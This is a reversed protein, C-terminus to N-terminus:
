NLKLKAAPCDSISNLYSKTQEGWDSSNSWRSLWFRAQNFSESSASIRCLNTIGDLVRNEKGLQLANLVILKDLQSQCIDPFQESSTQQQQQLRLLWVKKSNLDQPIPMTCLNSISSSQSNSSQSNTTINEQVLKHQSNNFFIILPSIVLLGTAIAFAAIQALPENKIQNAMVITKNYPTTKPNKETVIQLKKEQDSIQNKVWDKNFIAHYLRNAVQLKDDQEIVLGLNILEQTEQSHNSSIEGQQLIQLYIELLTKPLCVTNNLLYYEITKLYGGLEQYEWNYIINNQVIKEVFKAELGEAVFHNYNSIIRCIERTLFPHGGTWSFVEKLLLYPSAALSELHLSKIIEQQSPPLLQLQDERQVFYELFFNLTKPRLWAKEVILEGFLQKTHKQEELLIEIQEGDILSAQQLYYGLPQNTPKQSLKPLQDAFFDVTEQKIIGQSVLIQGFKVQNDQSQIELAARIQFNDILGAQELTKGLPKIVVSNM